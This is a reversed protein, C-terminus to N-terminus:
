IQQHHVLKQLYIVKMIGSPVNDLKIKIEECHACHSADDHIM